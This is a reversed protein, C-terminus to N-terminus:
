LRRHFKSRKWFAMVAATSSSQLSMGGTVQAAHLWSFGGSAVKQPSHPAGSRTSSVQLRQPRVLGAAVLNQWPQPVHGEGVARARLGSRRLAQGSCCSFPRDQALDFSRFRLALRWCRVGECRVGERCREGGAAILDPAEEAFSRAFTDVQRVVGPQCSVDRERDDFGVPQVFGPPPADRALRLGHRAEAIVRVDDRDM